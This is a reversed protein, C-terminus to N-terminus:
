HFSNCKGQFLCSSIINGYGDLKDSVHILKKVAKIDSIKVSTNM